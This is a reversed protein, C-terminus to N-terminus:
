LGEPEDVFRVQYAEGSLRHQMEQLQEQSFVQPNAPYFFRAPSGPIRLRPRIPQLQPAEAARKENAAKVEEPTHHVCPRLFILDGEPTTGIPNPNHLPPGELLYEGGCVHCKCNHTM